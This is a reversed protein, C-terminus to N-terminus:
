LRWQSIISIIFFLTTHLFYTLIYTSILYKNQYFLNIQYCHTHLLNGEVNTIDINDIIFIFLVNEIFKVICLITLM